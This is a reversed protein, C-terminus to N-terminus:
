LTRLLLLLLPKFVNLKIINNYYVYLYCTYNDDYRSRIKVLVTSVGRTVRAGTVDDGRVKGRVSIFVVGADQKGRTGKVKAGNHGRRSGKTIVDNRKRKTNIRKGRHRWPTPSLRINHGTKSPRHQPLCANLSGAKAIARGCNLKNIRISFISTNVKYTDFVMIQGNFRIFNINKLKFM